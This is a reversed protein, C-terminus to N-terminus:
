RYYASNHFRLDQQLFRHIFCLCTKAFASQRDAGDESVRPTAYDGAPVVEPDLTTIGSSVGLYNAYAVCTTAAVPRFQSQDACEARADHAGSRGQQELNRADHNALILVKTTGFLQEPLM